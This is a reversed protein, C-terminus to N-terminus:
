KFKVRQKIFSASEQSIREEATQRTVNVGAREIAALAEKEDLGYQRLIRAKQDDSIELFPRAKKPNGSPQGYSGIQNGEVRGAVEDSKSYGIVLKGDSEKILRMASLMKGTLTLDVDNVGVGKFKAYTKEYKPYKDGSDPERGSTAQEKIYDIIDSAILKREEKSYGKPITIVTQINKTKVGM